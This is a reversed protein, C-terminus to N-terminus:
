KECNLEQERVLEYDDDESVKACLKGAEWFIGVSLNVSDIIDFAIKLM